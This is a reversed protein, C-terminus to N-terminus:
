IQNRLHEIIGGPHGQVFRRQPTGKVELVAFVLADCLAEMALSSGVAMLGDYPDVEPPTDVKLVVTSLRGISSAPKATFTLMRAGRQRAIEALQCTERTEGTKSLLVLVDEPKVAGSSGHLSDGAHLFVAPCGVNCLLHAFRRAVIGTTGVGAAIVHGQCGALLEVAQGFSDDIQAALQNLVQAEAQLVQKALDTINMTKETAAEHNSHRDMLAAARVCITQLAVIGITAIKFRLIQLNRVGVPM